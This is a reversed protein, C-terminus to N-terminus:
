DGSSQVVLKHRQMYNQRHHAHGQGASTVRLLAYEHRHQQETLWLMENSAAYPVEQSVKKHM